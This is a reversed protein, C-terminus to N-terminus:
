IDCLVCSAGTRRTAAPEANRFLGVREPIIQGPAAVRPDDNHPHFLGTVGM